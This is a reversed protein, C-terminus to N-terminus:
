WISVADIFNCRDRLRECASERAPCHEVFLHREVSIESSIQWLAIRVQLFIPFEDGQPQECCVPCAQGLIDRVGVSEKLIWIEISQWELEDLQFLWVIVRGIQSSQM